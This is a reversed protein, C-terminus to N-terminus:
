SSELRAREAEAAVLEPDKGQNFTEKLEPKVEQWEKEVERKAQAAADKARQAAIQAANGAHHAALEAEKQASDKTNANQSGLSAPHRNDSM